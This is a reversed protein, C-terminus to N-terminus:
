EKEYYKMNGDQSKYLCAELGLNKMAEFARTRAGGVLGGEVEKDNNHDRVFIHYGLLRGKTTFLTIGDHNLMSGVLSSHSTLRVSSENTKELEAQSVFEAIDIPKELYIGDKLSATIKGIEEPDDKVVGILNGHGAKISEDILKEFFLPLREPDSGKIGSAIAASIMTVPNDSIKKPPNLNLYIRLGNRLGRIEVIKQGIGRIYAFTSDRPFLDKDLTQRYLSLTTETTETSLVGFRIHDSNIEIFIVWREVALPACLKLANKFSNVELPDKKVDVIYSPMTKFFSMDNTVVVEPYLHRGEEYYDAILDVLTLLGESTYDDKRFGEKELFIKIDQLLNDHLSSITFSFEGM